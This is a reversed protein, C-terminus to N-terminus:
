IGVICDEPYRFALQMCAHSLHSRRMHEAMKVRPKTKVMLAWIVTGVEASISAPGLSLVCGWMGYYGVMERYSSISFSPRMAWEQMGAVSVHLERWPLKTIAQRLIFVLFLVPDIVAISDSGLIWWNPSLPM